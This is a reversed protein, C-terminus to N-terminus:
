NRYIKTQAEHSDIGDLISRVDVIRAPPHPQDFDEVHHVSERGMRYASFDLMRLQKHGIIRDGRVTCKLEEANFVTAVPSM